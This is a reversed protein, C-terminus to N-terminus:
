WYGTEALFALGGQRFPWNENRSQSRSRGLNVMRCSLSNGSLKQLSRRGGAAPDWRHLRNPVFDGTSVDAQCACLYVSQALFDYM